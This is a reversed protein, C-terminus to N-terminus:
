LAVELNSYRKHQENLAKARPKTVIASDNQRGTKEIFTNLEKIYSDLEIASASLYQIRQKLDDVSLAASDNNIIEILGIINAVPKRLQHSTMFLMEKLANLYHKEKLAKNESIKRYCVAIYATIIIALISMGRNVYHSLAPKFKFDIFLTDIIILICAATSFRIIMQPDEKFLILICCLYLGDAIFEIPTFIDILFVALLGAIALYRVSKFPVKIM